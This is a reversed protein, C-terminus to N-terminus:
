QRGGAAWLALDASGAGSHLAEAVREGFLAGFKFGHGSCPSMVWSTPGLPEIIFREQAEVTYYCVQMRDLRYGAWGTLRRACCESISAIDAEVAERGGDPDGTMTFTHDGLVLSLGGVPPMAYFGAEPDIDLIMPSKQWLDLLQEPARMYAVVQRSPTVRAALGPVLRGIWAGGTVVLADAEVTSDNELTVRARVPDVATVRTKARITVTEHESLYAVLGELIREACLVGGSKLYFANDVGRPDILPFRLALKKPDLHIPAHGLAELTAASKALWDANGSGLCLTGTEIYHKAGLDAWLMDWAAYAEGVMRTYGTEDGYPYRILRHSDYSSAMPNPVSGQEFITVKHGRKVLAWATALGMIGAGVVSVKM